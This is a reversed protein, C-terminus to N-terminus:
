ITEELKSIINVAENYTQQMQTTGSSPAYLATECATIVSDIQAILVTPVKREHLAEHAKERSLASLPINLKDSLYMWIAKSVEEYFGAKKNQQLLLQATKLRKLAIKNARKNRLKVMDKSLEDDRRKWALLGVFALMPLAYMSWYAATFFLPKSQIKLNKLPTSVIPHIDTLSRSKAVTPNYLKGKSVQVKVPTTQLSVYSNTKPNYFSFPVPPIEYDGPINPSITYTIIKSGSITTTRGTITDVIQPDYTTLGNPLQLRPAEILKLNGAGNIRITYTLADDTTLATKDVGATVTFDGVANGYNEPKGNEPLPMVQIKVPASKLKVPVDKYASGGFVDDNFFPDSMMLSGFQQFFPDDDFMGGFPSRQRVQTVIRAQGDAEAPDLVLTGIQQPFLASKKLLFVQYRKGDIIEEEPKIAGRPIIFDQTWFGNLSPLKSIAVNMPIRAYLKYNATIQEGVYAKTKDVSVKIFLNQNVDSLDDAQAPSSQPQRQQQQQRQQMAQRRQQMIAAFPDNFPDDFPDYQRQQQKAALSGTVVQVSLANSEYTNGAADKAVAPPITLTGTKRPQLVYSHTLSQSQVMKNGVISINSSQSSFPGGVIVFDKFDPKSISRLNNVNEIRYDVQIQDKEGMKSASANASFVATQAWAKCSLITLLCLISLRCMNAFRVM